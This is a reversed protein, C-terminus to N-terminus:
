PKFDEFINKASQKLIEDRLWPAFRSWGERTPHFDKGDFDTNKFFKATYVRQINHCSFTAIECIRNMLAVGLRAKKKSGFYPDCYMLMVLHRDRPFQRVVSRVALFTGLMESFSIIGDESAHRVDNGSLSFIIPGSRETSCKLVESLRGYKDVAWERATTGSIAFNNGVTLGLATPWGADLGTDAERAASWSDGFVIWETAPLARFAYFYDHM